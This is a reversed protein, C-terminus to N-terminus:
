WHLTVKRPFVSIQLKVLEIQTPSRQVRIASPCIQRPIDWMVLVTGLYMQLAHGHKIKSKLPQVNQACILEIM